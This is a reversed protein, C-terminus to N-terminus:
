RWSGGAFTASAMLAAGGSYLFTHSRMPQPGAFNSSTSGNSMSGSDRSRGRPLVTDDKGVDHFAQLGAKPDWPMPPHTDIEDGPSHSFGGFAM